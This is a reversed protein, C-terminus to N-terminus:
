TITIVSNVGGLNDDAKIPNSPDPIWKGDVVFRYQYTGPDLSIIKEWMGNREKRSMLGDDPSWNNFDGAVLVAKATPSKFRFVIGGESSQPKLSFEEHEDLPYEEQLIIESALAHYDQYAISNKDYDVISKGFSAAEKLKVSMRITSTLLNEGFHEQIERLLERSFRTRKNFITALAQVKIIHGTKEEQLTVTELLKGLGHLSFFSPEVPVIAESSASLSNVSLLGLSPPCDIVIYDYPIDLEMLRGLLIREKGNFSALEQELFSLLINAPAVHLGDPRKIIIDNWSFTHAKSPSFADFITNQLGEPQYDLALTAHGQPDLDILLVKRGLENLCASFNVATTTKGCGGKQNIISITRM